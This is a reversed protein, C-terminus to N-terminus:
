DEILLIHLSRPGHAGLQLTQEVDATRSPGTIVNVTRPMPGESQLRIWVAEMYDVIDRQHLVVIHHDPLFNLTTPRTPGSPFVISGTEAIGSHALAVVAGWHRAQDFQTEVAMTDPWRLDAFMPDPALGIRIPAEALGEVYAQVAPVVGEVSAIRAHTGAAATLREIFRETLSSQWIPHPPSDPLRQALDAAAQKRSPAQERGLAVRVRQLIHERSQSM